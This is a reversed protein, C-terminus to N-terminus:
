LSSVDSSNGVNLSDKRQQTLWESLKGSRRIVDDSVNLSCVLMCVLFIWLITLALECDDSSIKFWM